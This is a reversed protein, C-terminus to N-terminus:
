YFTWLEFNYAYRSGVSINDPMFCCSLISSGIASTIYIALWVGSGWEREFFAGTDLQVSINGFLHIVGAHLFIPTVLRWYERDYLIKFANKAGWYDLADPYPGIMPNITLPAVSCQIMMVLLIFSQLCAFFVSLYAYSQKVIYVVEEKVEQTEYPENLAYSGSNSVRRTNVNTEQYNQFSFSPDQAYDEDGENRNRRTRSTTSM